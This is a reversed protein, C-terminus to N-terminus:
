GLEIRENLKHLYAEIEEATPMEMIQAIVKEMELCSSNNLMWRIKLISKSDVSLEDVGMAAYIPALRPNAAAEGCIGVWIDEQHAADVIRQILRFLAPHYETYLHAIRQNGRDVATTYQILDNTGISFFDVEKAFIEAIMAAAPVEVMMGVEIDEAFDINEKELEASVAKLQAKAARLEELSSIMPFMIKLNGYKSARLLARLQTRFLEQNALCIRIARFGLFPNDEPPIDLYPLEKDGGVDLTRFVVPKGKMKEVVSKYVTFQEEESPFSDRDLFLFETRYLGIGEGGNALVADVDQPGSINAAITFKKGDLSCTERDKLAQLRTNFEQLKQQKRQYTDLEAATPNLLVTGAEGDIIIADGNKVKTFIAEVGVVAPVGYSRAMISVHSTKSGKETVFGIIKSLDMKAFDSPALDKAVIVMEDSVADPEKEEIGLLIKTIRNRIDVLDAQRERLYEDEFSAFQKIYADTIVQLAWEANVKEKLIMQEVEGFFIDDGVLMKHAEFIQAEEDRNEQQMKQIIQDLQATSTQRAENLRKMEAGSHEITKREIKQVTEEKKLVYGIAIGSSVGIGKM